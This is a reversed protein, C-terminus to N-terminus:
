KVAFVWFKSIIFSCSVVFPLAFCQGVLKGVGMAIVGDLLLVNLVYLGGYMMIYRIFASKTPSKFVLWGSTIFSFIIGLVSSIALASRHDLDSLVGAAYVGYGFVTNLIGVLIFRALQQGCVLM